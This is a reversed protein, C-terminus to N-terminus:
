ETPKEADMIVESGGVGGRFFMFGDGQWKLLGAELTGSLVIGDSGVSIHFDFTKKTGDPNLVYQNNVIKHTQFDVELRNAVFNADRIMEPGLYNPQYFDMGTILMMMGTEEAEGTKGVHKMISGNLRYVKGAADKYTCAVSEFLEYKPISLLRLRRYMELATEKAM